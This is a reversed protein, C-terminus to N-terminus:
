RPARARAPRRFYGGVREVVAEGLDALGEPLRPRIGALILVAAGVSVGIPLAFALLTMPTSGSAATIFAGAVRVIVVGVVGVGLAVTRRRRTSEAQFLFILPVLAAVFAYFPNV